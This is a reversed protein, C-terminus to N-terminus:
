LRTAQLLQELRLLLSAEWHRQKGSLSGANLSVSTSVNFAIKSPIAGVELYETGAMSLELNNGSLLLTGAVPYCISLGNLNLCTEGTVARSVGRGESIYYRGTFPFQANQTTSGSVCIAGDGATAVGFFISCFVLFLRMALNM